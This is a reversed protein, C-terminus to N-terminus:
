QIHNTDQYEVVMVYKIKDLLERKLDEHEIIMKYTEVQISSFDLLNNKIRLAEYTKLVEGYFKNSAINSKLLEKYDVLEEQFRNIVRMLKSAKDWWVNSSIFSDFNEIKIFESLHNYIFYQQEFQDVVRFNKKLKSKEVHDKLIKLCISHFTGIYMDNPNFDMEFKALINSLRSILEKSAKETFTALFISTPDINHNIILNITRNILTFTKGTGPGAIILLPGDISKIAELQQSNATAKIDNNLKRKKIANQLGM